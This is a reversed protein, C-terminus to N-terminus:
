SSGGSGGTSLVRSAITYGLASAARTQNYFYAMEFESNVAIAQELPDIGQPFPKGHCIRAYTEDFADPPPLFSVM